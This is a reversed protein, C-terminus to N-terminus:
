SRSAASPMITLFTSACLHVLAHPAPAAGTALRSAEEAAAGVGSMAGDAARLSDQATALLSSHGAKLAASAAPAACSRSLNVLIQTLTMISTTRSTM